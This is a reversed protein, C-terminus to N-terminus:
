NAGTYTVTVQQEAANGDEDNAVVVIINEGEDLVIPTSFNGSKDAKLSIDNVSVEAYMSTKGTVTVTPTSISSNNVPSILTLTIENRAAINSESLATEKNLPQTETQTQTQTQTQTIPLSGAKKKSYLYIGGGVLVIAVILAILLNKM